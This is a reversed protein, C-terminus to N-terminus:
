NSNTRCPDSPVVNLIELPPTLALAHRLISQRHTSDSTLCAVSSTFCTFIQKKMLGYQPQGSSRLNNQPLLAADTGHDM